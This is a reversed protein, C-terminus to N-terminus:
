LVISVQTSQMTAAATPQRAVCKRVPSARRPSSALSILLHRCRRWCRNMLLLLVSSGCEGRCVLNQHDNGGAPSRRAAAGGGGGSPGGWAATVAATRGPASGTCLSRICM